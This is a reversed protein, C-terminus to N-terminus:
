AAAPLDLLIQTATVGCLTAALGEKEKEGGKREMLRVPVERHCAKCYTGYMSYRM